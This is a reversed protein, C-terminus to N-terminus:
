IFPIFVLWFDNGGFIKKFIDSIKRFFETLAPLLKYKVFPSTADDSLMGAKDMARYLTEEVQSAESQSWVKSEKLAKAAEIAKDVAEDKGAYENTNYRNILSEITKLNRYENFQPYGGNNVRADTITKDTVLAVCLGIVDNVSTQLDLHSQNKIVFTKDPLAATGIDVTKDPNIYSEDISPSYDTGLTEGCDAFTGGLTTSAAQIIEDTSKSYHSVAAPLQLNYGAIVFIDVGESDLKQLTAKANKQIEYYEDTIAKLEKHSEDSIYKSSLEPYVDSPVLAWMSQCNRLLKGLVNDLAGELAEQLFDSFVEQPIARAVVNGLYGLAMYEEAAINVVSPILENYLVNGDSLTTSGDMLDSLLYSGDLAAAALVVRGISDKDIFKSLYVDAITGGLSIFVLDVKDHGTQEKVMEIYENLNEAANFVNTFSSYAYYYAHDYGAKACYATIDVQRYIFDYQTKYKTSPLANGNEDKSYGKIYNYSKDPTKACEELSYWYEDTARKNVETGDDNFYHDAFSKDFIDFVIDFLEERSGKAIASLIEPLRDKIESKIAYTDFMFSLDMGEMIPFGDSTMIDNGDADQVYTQSQMIGPVIIMPNYGCDGDCDTKLAHEWEHSDAFVSMPVICLCLCVSLFICLAKKFKM